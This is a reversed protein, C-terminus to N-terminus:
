AALGPYCEDAVPMGMGARRRLRVADAAPLGAESSRARAASGTDGAM